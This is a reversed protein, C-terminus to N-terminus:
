REPSGIPMIPNENIQPNVPPASPPQPANVSGNGGGGPPQMPMVPQELLQIIPEIGDIEAEKLALIFLQLAAAPNAMPNQMLGNYFQLLRQARADKLLLGPNGPAVLDVEERKPLENRTIEVYEFGQQSEKPIRIKIPRTLFQAWRDFMMYGLQLFSYNFNRIKIDFRLNAASQLLQVTTATERREPSAGVAYDLLGSIDQADQSLDQFEKYGANSIQGRQLPQVANALSGELPRAGVLMGPRSLKLSEVDVEADRNYLYGVNIALTNNDTRQRRLTSMEIQTHFLPEAEGMQFLENPILNDFCAVFPKVKPVGPFGFPNPEDRLLVSHNATTIVKDDEWYEYILIMPDREDPRPANPEYISSAKKDKTEDEMNPFLLDEDFDQYVGSDRLRILESKRKRIRHIVYKATGFPDPFQAEPSFFLDRVDIHQLDLRDELIEEFPETVEQMVPMGDEGIIPKIKKRTGSQKRLKWGVKLYSQGYILADKIWAQITSQGQHHDFFYEYLQDLARLPFESQDTKVRYRSQIPPSASFLISFIRPLITEITKYIVPVVYNSRTVVNYLQQNPAARYLAYYEDCKRHWQGMFDNSIEFSRRVQEVQNEAVDGSVRYRMGCVYTLTPTHGYFFPAGFLGWVKNMSLFTLGALTFPHIRYECILENQIRICSNV